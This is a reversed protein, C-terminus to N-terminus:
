IYELLGVPRGLWPKHERKICLRELQACQPNVMRSEVMSLVADVDLDAVQDYICFVRLQPVLVPANATPTADTSVHLVRIINDMNPYPGFFRFIHLPEHGILGLEVIDPNMELIQRYQEVPPYSKMWFKRLSCKSRKLLEVVHPFGEVRVEIFFDQLAPLVLQDLLPGPALVTLKQLHEFRVLESPMRWAHHLRTVIVTAQLVTLNQALCLGDFHYPNICQSEFHTLQAWPFVSHFPPQRPWVFCDHYNEDYDPSMMVKDAHLRPEAIRVVQLSPAIEFVNENVYGSSDACIYIARLLPINGRMRLLADAPLLWNAVLDLTEWRSSSDVIASFIRGTTYGPQEQSLLSVRLPLDGGRALQEKLLPIPYNVRSRTGAPISIVLDTWMCAMDLMTERWRGCVRALGWSGHEISIRGFDIAEQRSPRTLKFIKMLIETPLSQISTGAM